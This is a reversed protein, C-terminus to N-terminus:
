QQIGNKCYPNPVGECKIEEECNNRQLDLLVFFEISFYLTNEKFQFRGTPTESRLLEEPISIIKQLSVLPTNMVAGTIKAIIDEHSRTENDNFFVLRHPIQFRYKMVNCGGLKESSKVEASGTQRCYCSFGKNDEIGVGVFRKNVPAVPRNGGSPIPKMVVSHYVGTVFGASLVNDFLNTLTSYGLM